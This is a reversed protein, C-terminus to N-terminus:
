KFQLMGSKWTKLNVVPVFGPDPSHGVRQQFTTTGQFCSGSITLVGRYNGLKAKHIHGSAAIDPTQRILLPDSAMPLALTSGFSPALHRRKLLFEWLKDAANYGGAMRLAEISDVYSDFSYGHYLLLDVGAFGNTKHLKVYSPNPLMMVNPIEYIPAAVDRYLAPQPECLRVADHNGPIILVQKDEPIQKLLKAAEDYQKYIDFINIEKEQEPYVGIGDVVDGLVIVYRTKAALEKSDSNGVEGKLWSVFKEFEDPLFMKSGVHLDSCFAINVDDPAASHTKQPIDPWVMDSVFFTDKGCKGKFALIEDNAIFPIKKLMEPNKASLIASTQGTMDELILKLTGTPLKKIDSIMAIITAEGDSSSLKSISIADSNEPRNQLITKLFGYRNRFYAAFDAVGIKKPTYEFHQLIEVAFDAGETHTKEPKVAAPEEFVTHSASVVQQIKDMTPLQGMQLLTKIADKETIM